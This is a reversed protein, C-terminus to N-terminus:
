DPIHVMGPLRQGDTQFIALALDEVSSLLQCFGSPLCTPEM